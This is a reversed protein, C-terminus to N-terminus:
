YDNNSQNKNLQLKNLKGTNLKIQKGFERETAEMLGFMFGKEKKEGMEFNELM